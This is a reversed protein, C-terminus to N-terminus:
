RTLKINGEDKTNNIIKYKHDSQKTNKNVKSLTIEIIMFLNDKTDTSSYYTITFYAHFWATETMLVTLIM